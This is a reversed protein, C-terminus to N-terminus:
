DSNKEAILKLAGNMSELIQPVAKEMKGWFLPVLIGSFAEIHVLRTGSDIEELELVKDNTFFFEAMMTARWRFLNPEQINTVIAKYKQADKGDKGRMTISLESGRAAEGTAQNIVPNWDKWNNFDTLIGWVKDIPAAIDIETRLERM